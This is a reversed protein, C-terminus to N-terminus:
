RGLRINARASRAPPFTVLTQTPPNKAGTASPSSVRGGVDGPRGHRCGRAGWPRFAASSPRTRGEPFTRVVVGSVRDQNEARGVPVVEIRQHKMSPPHPGVDASPIRAIEVSGIGRVPPPYASLHSCVAEESEDHLGRLTQDDSAARHPQLGRLGPRAPKRTGVKGVDQRHVGEGREPAPTNRGPEDIRHDLPCPFPPVSSDSEVGRSRSVGDVLPETELVRVFHSQGKASPM